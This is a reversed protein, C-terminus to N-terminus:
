YVMMIVYTFATMINALAFVDVLASFVFAVGSAAVSALVLTLLYIFFNSAQAELGVMWYSIAGFVITPLVRLPIVDCIVKALYYASVRYYGSINEHKFLVKEKIFLEISNLNGFVLNMIVFFFAGIRDQVGVFSNDVQFFIVGVIAAFLAMIIVQLMALLPNRIINTLTRISVMLLQWPFHTNYQPSIGRPENFAKTLMPELHSHLEKIASSQKYYTTLPANKDPDSTVSSENMSIVDLFFDAPNNHQECVYCLM